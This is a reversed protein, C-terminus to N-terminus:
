WLRVSCPEHDFSECEGRRLHHRVRHQTWQFRGIQQLEGGVIGLAATGTRSSRTRWLYRLKGTFHEETATGVVGHQRRHQEHHDIVPDHTVSNAITMIGGGFSASSSVVSNAHITSNEVLLRTSRAPSTSAVAMPRVLRPRRTGRHDMQLGNIEMMGGAILYVPGHAPRGCRHHSGNNAIRVNILKSAASGVQQVALGGGGNASAGRLALDRVVVDGGGISLLIHGDVRTGTM